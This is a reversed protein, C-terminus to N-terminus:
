WGEVVVTGATWGTASTLTISSSSLSTVTVGASLNSSYFVGQPGTFTPLAVTATGICGGYDGFIAKHYTPSGIATDFEYQVSGSVTCGTSGGGGFTQPCGTGDALCHAVQASSATSYDTSGAGASSVGSSTVQFQNATGVNFMSTATTDGISVNGNMVYENGNIQLFQGTTTGATGAFNGYLLSYNQDNTATSQQINGVYFANPITSNYGAYAGLAVSNSSTTNTYLSGFGNATNYAGTTNTHLSGDGNATNNQGTTNSFLSVAGNATNNQGTTNSYLSYAGNAANFGGTTNSYLSYYGNATNYTGSLSGSSLANSGVAVNSAISNAGLSLTLGNVAGTLAATITGASFNKSADRAVITSATNASTADSTLTAAASGNYSSAGAGLHTGFTLIDLNSGLAIGSITANYAAFDTAAHTAATGVTTSCGSAGNSLDGCAAQGFTASGNSTVAGTVAGANDAKTGQAATAYASSATFAASALTGDTTGTNVNAAVTLTKSTTGGAVTFGTTQPTLTLPSVYTGACTLVGTSGNVSCSTGDPKVGGLTSTTAIPLSYGSPTSYAFNGSGDNHLWGAANSLSGISTLNTYAAQRAAAAGSVDFSSSSYGSDAAQGSTGTFSMFDGSTSSTPGTTIGSGSGALAKSSTITTASGAIPIQTATMGSIGSSTLYTNTDLAFTGAATMKVFPTGTTWTPYNLGAWNGVATSCGSAGNSLDGCAAQSFTASGNSKVAGTVAGVNDAKTGQEATAFSGASYGSAQIAGGNGVDYFQGPVGAYQSLEAIRFLGYDGLVSPALGPNLQQGFSTSGNSSEWNVGCTSCNASESTVINLNPTGLPATTATTGHHGRTINYISNGGSTHDFTYGIEERVATVMHGTLPIGALTAIQMTTDGANLTATLLPASVATVPAQWISDTPCTDSAYCQVTLATNVNLTSALVCTGDSKLLGSCSGSGFLGTIDSYLPTRWATNVSNAVGITNAGPYTMTSGPTQWGQATAGSNMGWVQNATGNTSINTATAANGTTSGATAAYSVSLTNANIISPAIPSGLPLYGALLQQGTTWVSPLLSGVSTATPATLLAYQSYSSPYTIGNLNGAFSTGHVIGQLYTDTIGSGGITTTNSGNGTVSNGIVIENNDNDALAQTANGIYISNSSIKNATSGGSVYEGAQSGV